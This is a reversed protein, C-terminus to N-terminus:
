PKVEQRPAYRKGRLKNRIFNLFTYLKPIRVFLQFVIKEIHSLYPFILKFIKKQTPADYYMIAKSLLTLGTRKLRDYPIQYDGQLSQWARFGATLCQANLANKKSHSDPNGCRYYHSPIPDYSWTKCHIARMILEFDEAGRFENKFGGVEQLRQRAIAAGSLELIGHSQYLQFYTDHDLHNQPTDFPTASISVIRNVNMSYHQAAAIYVVDSTQYVANYIRQLHDPQWWDDADLFAFWDGVAQAIGLNRAGAPGLRDGKLIHIPVQSQAQLNQVLMLSADTSGDDIVFIELAPYTQALVSNLTQEIWREANYCPIIVSFTLNM